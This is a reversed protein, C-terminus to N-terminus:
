PNVQSRPTQPEHDSRGLASVPARLDPHVSGLDADTADIRRTAALTAVLGLLCGTACVGTWGWRDYVSSSVASGLAGGLFYTTM